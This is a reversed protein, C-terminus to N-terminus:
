LTIKKFHFVYKDYYPIPPGSGGGEYTVFSWVLSSMFVNAIIESIYWRRLDHHDPTQIAREQHFIM